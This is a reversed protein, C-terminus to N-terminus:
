ASMEEVSYERVEPSQSLLAKQVEPTVVTAADTVLNEVANKVALLIDRRV